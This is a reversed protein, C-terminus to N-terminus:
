SIIFLLKGRRNMYQRYKRETQTIHDGADNGEVHKGKTSNFGVVNIFLIHTFESGTPLGFASLDLEETLIDDNDQDEV